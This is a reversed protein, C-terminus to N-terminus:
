FPVLVKFGGSVQDTYRIIGRGFFTESWSFQLDVPIALRSLRVGFTGFFRGQETQPYADLARLMTKFESHGSRIDPEQAIGYVFGFGAQFLFIDMTLRNTVEGTHGFTVDYTGSLDSADPFLAAPFAIGSYSDSPRLKQAVFRPANRTSPLYYTYSAELSYIFHRFFGPGRVDLGHGIMPGFAGYGLDIQPGLGYRLAQNADAVRGTPLVSGAEAALSIYDNRLYNYAVSATTDGMEPGSSRYRKVPRPRGFLEFLEYLDARERIGIDGSTGPALEVTLMLDSEWFSTAVRAELRDLIGFSATAFTGFLEGHVKPAFALFPKGSRPDDVLVPALFPGIEGDDDFREIFKRNEFTLDISFFNRPLQPTAVGWWAREDDSYVTLRQWAYAFYGKDAEKETPDGIKEAAAEAVYPLNDAGYVPIVALLLMAALLIMPIRRAGQNM